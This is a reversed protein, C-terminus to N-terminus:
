NNLKDLADYYQDVAEVAIATAAEIQVIAEKLEVVEKEVQDVRYRLRAIDFVLFVIALALLVATWNFKPKNNM